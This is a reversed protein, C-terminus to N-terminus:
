LTEGFIEAEPIGCQVSQDQIADILHVLGDLQDEYPTGQFIIELLAAKQQRLLAWDISLFLQAEDPTM